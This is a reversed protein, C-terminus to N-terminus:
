RLEESLREVVDDLFRHISAEAIRHGVMKDAAGGFVGGPPDYTGQLELQTENNGLPYAILTAHMTPFLATHTDAHWELDLSTAESAMRPATAHRNVGHVRIVVDKGVDFGAISVHLTSVLDKARSVAAKTAREFLGAGDSALTAGVKEYPRNVYEYCRITESM